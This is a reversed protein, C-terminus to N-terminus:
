MLHQHKYSSLGIAEGILSVFESWQGVTRRSSCSGTPVASMLWIRRLGVTCQRTCLLSGSTAVFSHFCVAHLKTMDTRRDTFRCPVVRGGRSPNEHFKINSYKEFIQGYFLNKNFYSLLLLYKVRLSHTDSIIDRQISRIILFMQSFMQLFIPVRM